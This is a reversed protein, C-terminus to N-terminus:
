PSPWIQIYKRIGINHPLGVLEERSIWRAETSQGPMAKPEKTSLRVAIYYVRPGLQIYLQTDTWYDVGYELGTEERTERIATDLLHTDIRECHGKPFSWKDSKTDRVCLVENNENHLIIGAM